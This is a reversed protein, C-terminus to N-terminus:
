SSRGKRRRVAVGVAGLGALMLAISAPEPVPAAATQVDFRLTPQDAITLFSLTPITITLSTATFVGFPDAPRPPATPNDPSQFFDAWQSAGVNFSVGTISHAQAGQRFDLGTLAYVTNSRDNVVSSPDITLSLDFSDEDIWDITNAFEVDDSSFAALADFGGSGATGAFPGFTEGLTTVSLQFSDGLVSAAHAAPTLCLAACVPALWRLRLLSM